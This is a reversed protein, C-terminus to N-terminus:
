KQTGGGREDGGGRGWVKREHADLCVVATRLESIPRRVARYEERGEHKGERCRKHRPLRAESEIGAEGKLDANGPTSTVITLPQCRSPRTVM